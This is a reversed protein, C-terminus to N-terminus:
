YTFLRDSTIKQEIKWKTDTDLASKLVILNTQPFQELVEVSSAQFDPDPCVLLQRDGDQVRYVTNDPFETLRTAQYHLSFGQKLAIELILSDVDTEELLSTQAEADLYDQLAQLNEAESKSPDQDFANQPFNSPALSFVKYGTDLDAAEPHEARIKDGARKVREICIDSITAYGAKAAESKVDTQEPIQVLVFRRAGGDEANLEMVAQGTTGSGAFFDLVLAEKDVLSLIKKLLRLPKPYDLLVENEFLDRMEQAGDENSGWGSEHLNSYDILSRHNSNKNDGTRSLLDKLTKKRPESVVRRIYLDQTIYLSDDEAFEDLSTQTYRWKGKITVDEVLVGNKIILPSLYEISMTSASIKTGAKLSINQEKYKSKTGKRITRKGIKNDPNICPYTEEASNVEGILPSMQSSDRSYCLIYEKVNSILGSLFSAKKKKEWVLAAVFNEEGFVEDMLKRLNHVENDDISVFIVGDPKLLRRALILRSQMMSLWDSHYRGNTEPNAELKVGHEDVAGSQQWYEERTQSYNDPYIFDKGTNYPPDIYICKVQEFYSAQLLKLVELNDGEIIANRTTEFERSKEAEAVLTAKSPTLALRKSASKGAWEFTFKEVKAGTYEQALEKLAGEDLNGDGDFLDPMIQKLKAVREALLDPSTFNLEQNLTTHNINSM